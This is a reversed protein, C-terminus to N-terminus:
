PALPPRDVAVIAGAGNANVADDYMMQAYAAPQIFRGPTSAKSRFHFSFTGQPLTEYFYAVQDDLFATYSPALTPEASPTAEPPATALGPDLPEMGAALPIVIAVHHREVPNVVDLSDEVVDGVALTIVKGPQDLLTRKAPAGTPDLKAIDRTVVFGASAPAVHSGDEM